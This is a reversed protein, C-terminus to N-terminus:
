FFNLDDNRGDGSTWISSILVSSFELHMRVCLTFVPELIYRVPGALEHRLCRYSDLLFTKLTCMNGPFSVPLKKKVLIESRVTSFLSV